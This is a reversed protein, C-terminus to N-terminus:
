FAIRQGRRTELLVDPLSQFKRPKQLMLIDASPM